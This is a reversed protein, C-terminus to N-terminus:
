GLWVIQNGRVEFKERSLRDIAHVYAAHELPLLRESLSAENEGPLIDLERQEVVAGADLHENVLHVTCGTRKAGADLAQKQAGLGPFAPLLSPHINVIRNSWRQVLSKSLLLMYGGLAVMDPQFHAIQKELEAEYAPRDWKGNATRFSSSDILLSPVGLSEATALVPAKARNCILGVIQTNPLKGAQVAKAVAEFNSGRGSALFLWKM